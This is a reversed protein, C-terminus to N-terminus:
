PPVGQPNSGPPKPLEPPAPSAERSKRSPKIPRQCFVKLERNGNMPRSEGDKWESDRQTGQWQSDTRPDSSRRQRRFACHRRHSNQLWRRRGRCAGNRGLPHGAASASSRRAPPCRRGTCADATTRFTRYRSCGPRAAARDMRHAPRYLGIGAPCQRGATCPPQRPCPRSHARRRQALADLQRRGHLARGRERPRAAKRRTRPFIRKEPLAAATDSPQCAPHRDGRSDTQRAAPRTTKAVMAQAATRRHRRARNNIRWRSFSRSAARLLHSCLGRLPPDSPRTKRAPHEHNRSHTASRPNCSAVIVDYDPVAPAHPLLFPPNGAKNWGHWQSWIPIIDTNRNPFRPNSM